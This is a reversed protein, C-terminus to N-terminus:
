KHTVWYLIYIYTYLPRAQYVIAIKEAPKGSHLHLKIQDVTDFQDECELCIVTQCWLNDRMCFSLFFSLSLSILIHNKLSLFFSLSLSFFLFYSLFLNFTIKIKKNFKFKYRFVCKIIIIVYTYLPDRILTFWDRIATIPHTSGQVLTLM